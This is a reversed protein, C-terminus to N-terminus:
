VSDDEKKNSKVTSYLARITCNLLIMLHRGRGSLQWALNWDGSNIVTVIKDDIRHNFLKPFRGM